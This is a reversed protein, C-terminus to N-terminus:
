ESIRPAYVKEDQLEANHNKCRVSSECSPQNIRETAKEGVHNGIRELYTQFIEIYASPM